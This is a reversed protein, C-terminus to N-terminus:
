VYQISCVGVCASLVPYSSHSFKAPHHELVPTATDICLTYRRLYHLLLCQPATGLATLALLCGSVVSSVAACLQFVAAWYVHAVNVGVVM